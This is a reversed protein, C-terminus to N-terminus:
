FSIKEKILESQDMHTRMPKSHNQQNLVNERQSNLSLNATNKRQSERTTSTEGTSKSLKSSANANSVANTQNNIIVILHEMSMKGNTLLRLASKQAILIVVQLRPFTKTLSKKLKESRLGDTLTLKLQLRLKLELLKVLLMM